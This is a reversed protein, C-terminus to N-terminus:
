DHQEDGIGFRKRVVEGRIVVYGAEEGRYDFYLITDTKPDSLLITVTAM